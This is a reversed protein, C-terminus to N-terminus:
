IINWLNQLKLLWALKRTHHEWKYHLWIFMGVEPSREWKCPETDLATKTNKSLDTKNSGYPQITLCRYWLLLLELAEQWRSSNCDRGNWAYTGAACRCWLRTYEHHSSFSHNTHDTCFNYVRLFRQILPKFKRFIWLTQEYTLNTSKKWKILCYSMLM